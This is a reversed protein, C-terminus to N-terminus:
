FPPQLERPERVFHEEIYHYPEYYYPDYPNESAGPPLAKRENADKAIQNHNNGLSTGAEASDSFICLGLIAIVVTTTKM